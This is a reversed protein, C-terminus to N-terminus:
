QLYINKLVNILCCMTKKKSTYVLSSVSYRIEQSSIRPNTHKIKRAKNIHNFRITWSSHYKKSEKKYMNAKYYKTPANVFFKNSNFNSGEKIKNMIFILIELIFTHNNYLTTAKPAKKHTKTNTYFPSIPALVTFDM